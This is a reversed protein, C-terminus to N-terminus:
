RNPPKFQYLSVELLMANSIKVSPRGVSEKDEFWDAKMEMIMKSDEGFGTNGTHFFTMPMVALSLVFCCSQFKM